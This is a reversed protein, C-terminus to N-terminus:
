ILCVTNFNIKRGDVGSFNLLYINATRDSIEYTVASFFEKFLKGVSFLNFEIKKM